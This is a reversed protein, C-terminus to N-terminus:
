PEFRMDLFARVKRRLPADFTYAAGGRMEVRPLFAVPTLPFAFRADFGLARYWRAHDYLTPATSAAEYFLTWNGPISARWALLSNGVSVATPYMPLAHRQTLLSSDMVPSMGGGVSFLEFPHPDGIIRGHTVSAQLPFMDRGLTRLDLTGVVRRYRDRSRGYEGHARLEASIGRAGRLRHVRLSSELFGLTREHAAAERPSLRGGAGGVRAKVRWWEGLRERSVAAVVQTLSGDVLKATTDGAARHSSLSPEHILGHAGFEVHPRAYRWMARVSGGQWTGIEGLAGTVVGTLRGVIDGSYVSLMAGSGDPNSFAGPLWRGHRPGAGYPRSPPAPSAPLEVTAAGRMGTFGFREARIDVASDALAGGAAMWRVDLGRAHMTLFWVSGDARNVDPAIAAGTVRTLAIPQFSSVSIKELNPIGGRESVVVLTDSALWQADYRNAGDDPDVFRIARGDNSSVLLKWRSGDLVSTVFRTGDPSYRPRYYTRDPAGKLVTRMVGRELDVHVVDCHGWHCQMALAERSNPHPDGHLVGVANTIQRVSGSETDWEYLAPALANDSRAAWRTVLVRRNDSYWRPMQYSRGQDALLTAVAQKPRPYFRRDPVDLPDRTLAELRRRMAATDEPEATTKWVVLRGPRERERLAIAVREGNPSIAPDGTEWTLRQILDGQVLGASELAAKARMADRTLEATHLGYLVGPSDGYVGRFASDFSRVQRATLRRWLHTLSSDGQRRMLWELFASGGLYAFEGGRYDGTLNLEGYSPLQGELAWQRLLAPRWANNPRGSGTVQGEVVTAYGEYVWRPTKLVLPSVNVPLSSWLRRQLPNRSPRTLHALHALEHVSLLEGWTRYNGIDNRPDAPTAYWVTVPRDIFPLAYGNSVVYPDDVVIDVPKRVQWGVQRTVASDIARVREALDRTWTETEPLYHFRFGHNEVTRWGLWPRVPDQASAVIPVGCLAAIFFPRPLRRPGWRHKVRAAM